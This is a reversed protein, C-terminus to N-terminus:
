FPRKRESNGAQLAANGISRFAGVTMSIFTHRLVDHPLTFHTRVDARMDRFRREPIVPLKDQPYKDLWLRLNPQIKITRKENVKSVEPEILIM